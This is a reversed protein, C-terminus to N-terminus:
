SALGNVLVAVVADGPPPQPARLLDLAPEGAGPHLTDLATAVYSWFRVPDNDGADFSVWALPVDHGAAGARWACLATTKGFGAPAALLTLKRRLGATLREDLRSRPVLDFRPPPVFLKTALLAEDRM